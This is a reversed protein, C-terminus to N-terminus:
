VSFGGEHLSQEQEIRALFALLQRNTVCILDPTGVFTM